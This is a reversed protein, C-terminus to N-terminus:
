QAATVHLKHLFFGRTQGVNELACIFPDPWEHPLLGRHSPPAHTRPNEGGAHYLRRGIRLTAPATQGGAPRTKKKKKLKNYIIIDM